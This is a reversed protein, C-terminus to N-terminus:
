IIKVVFRQEGCQFHGGRELGLEPIRLWLGNLSQANEIQWRGKLDRVLRAHRPSLMKDDIVISCLRPDRGVWHETATLPFRTATGQPGVEVLAAAGLQAIEASSDLSWKRTGSPPAQTEPAIPAASEVRYRRGGLLIEQQPGLLTRSVRVFTGNSSGLDKLYWNYQGNEWRRSIEAHRGSIAGDHPIVLDGDARGIVFREGRIRITEGTEEGDDLVTLLAMTPRHMPRFLITDSDPQLQPQTQQQPQAPPRSPPGAGPITEKVTQARRIQERVEEVSELVTAIRRPQQSGGSTDGPMTMGESRQKQGSQARQQAHLRGFRNSILLDHYGLGM